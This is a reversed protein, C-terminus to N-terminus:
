EEERDKTRGLKFDEEELKVFGRWRRKIYNQLPKPFIELFAKRTIKMKGIEKLSTRQLFDLVEQHILIWNIIKLPNITGSHSRIELTGRYFISHLNAWCYRKRYGHDRTDNRYNSTEYIMEKFKDLSTVNMIKDPTDKYYKEFKKCFSRTRRSNPLMSFFMEEYRLYFLYLKKLFELDKEVELHIHLGCSKDIYYKRVRLEKNFSKISDFLLDGNMPVSRFEVGGRSLSSDTGQSFKYNLLEKKVFCNKDRHNNICEIEVGCYGSRHNNFFTKSCQKKQGINISCFERYRINYCDKCFIKREAIIMNKNLKLKGCDYCTSVKNIFCKDCLRVRDIKQLKNVSHNCNDCIKFNKRACEICYIKDCVTIIKKSNTYWGITRWGIETSCQSCRKEKLHGYVRRIINKM